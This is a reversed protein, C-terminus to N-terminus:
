TDVLLNKHTSFEFSYQFITDSMELVFHGGKRGFHSGYFTFLCIKMVSTLWTHVLLNKHVIYEFSFTTSSM